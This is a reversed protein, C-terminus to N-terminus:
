CTGLYTITLPETRSVVTGYCACINFDDGADIPLEQNVSDCDVYDVYLTGFWPNAVNYTSCECGGSSTPTSSPTPTPSPSPAECGGVVNIILNSESIPTSCSCVQTAALSPLAFIQSQGNSCNVISVNASTGGTNEIYYETCSCTPTSSPTPTPTPTTPTSSPTPTPTPTPHVPSTSGTFDGFL